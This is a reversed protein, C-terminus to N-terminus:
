FVLELPLEIVEHEKWNDFKAIINFNALEDQILTGV